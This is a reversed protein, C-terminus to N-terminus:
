SNKNTQDINKQVSAGRSSWSKTSFVRTTLGSLATETGESNVENEAGSSVAHSFGSSTLCDTQDHLHAAILKNAGM